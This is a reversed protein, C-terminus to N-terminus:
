VNTIEDLTQDGFIKTLPKHNTVVVLNDCGHTFYKIQELGWAVALAKGEVPAYRQEASLLSRSGALTVRWGFDCCDPICSDCSCHKQLLLYGIGRNSWDPRLCTRRTPYFIEVGHRIADIIALKSSAVTKDLDESWKLKRKPSLFQKFPAVFDRLQAYNAVQNVVGFWSRVDTINKPTPFDRVANLYKSLPEM